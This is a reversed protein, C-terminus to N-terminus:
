AEMEQVAARRVIRKSHNVIQTAAQDNLMQQRSDQLVQLRQRRQRAREQQNQQYDRLMTQDVDPLTNEEKQQKNGFSIQLDNVSNQVQLGGQPNISLLHNRKLRNNNMVQGIWRSQQGSVKISQQAMLGDSYEQVLAQQAQQQDLQSDWQWDKQYHWQKEVSQNRQNLVNDVEPVEDIQDLQQWQGNPNVMGVRTGLNTFNDIQQHYHYVQMLWNKAVSDHQMLQLGQVDGLLLHRANNTLMQGQLQKVMTTPMGSQQSFFACERSVGFDHHMSRDQLEQFQPVDEVHQYQKPNALYNGTTAIQYQNAIKLFKGRFDADNVLQNLDMHNVNILFGDQFGHELVQEREHLLNQRQKRLIREWQNNQQTLFLAPQESQVSALGQLQAQEQHRYLNLLAQSGNLNGDHKFFETYVNRALKHWAQSELNFGNARMQVDDALDQVAGILTMAQNSTKNAMLGESSLQGPTLNVFQRNLQQDVNDALQNALNEPLDLGAGTQDIINDRYESLKNWYPQWQDNQQDNEVNHDNEVARRQLQMARLNLLQVLQAAQQKQITNQTQENAEKLDSLERMKQNNATFCPFVHQENLDDDIISRLYHTEDKYIKGRDQWRGAYNMLRDSDELPTQDCCTIHAHVHQRDVQVAGVWLPDKIQAYDTYAQMGQQVSHRLKYEDILDFGGGPFPQGLPLDVAGQRILYDTQFSIVIMQITHGHNYAGQVQEAENYLDQHNLTLHRQDFAVGQTSLYKSSMSAASKMNEYQDKTYLDNIANTWDKVMQADSAISETADPRATYNQIFKNLTKGHGKLSNNTFENVVVISQNLGLKVM